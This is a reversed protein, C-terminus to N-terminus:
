LLIIQMGRRPKIWLTGDQDCRTVWPGLVDPLPSSEGVAGLSFGEALPAGIVVLELKGGSKVYTGVNLGDHSVVRGNGHTWVRVPFNEVLDLTSFANTSAAM